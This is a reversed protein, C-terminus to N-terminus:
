DYAPCIGRSRQRFHKKRDSCGFVLDIGTRVSINRASYPWVLGTGKDQVFRFPVNDSALYFVAGKGGIALAFGFNGLVNNMYSTSASLSLFRFPIYNVSATLSPHLRWAYIDFRGLLGANLKDNFQWTGGGYLQTSTLTVYTRRYNNLRFANQVSDALSQLLQTQQITNFNNLDVGTFNFAGKVELQNINSRWWIFGLDTLSAYLTINEDRHYIVGVDFGLGQNGNFFYNGPINTGARSFSINQVLGNADYSIDMPFSLSVKANAAAQLTIPNTTTKLQLESSRTTFSAAGMLYKVRVGWQWEDDVKKSAAVSISTYSVANVGARKLSLDRPLNTQLNWNGDKLVLIDKPIDVRAETHNAVLFSFYWDNHRFGFGLLTVDVNAKLSSVKRMTRQLTNFAVLFVPANNLDSYRIANHWSAGTSNIGVAISSIVPLEVFINCRYQLAPNLELTQPAAHLFYLTNNQAFGTGPGTHMMIFLLAVRFLIGKLSPQLWECCHLPWIPIGPVHKEKRQKM